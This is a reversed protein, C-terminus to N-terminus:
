PLKFIVPFTYKVEVLEGDQKGPTWKPSKSVVRMAEADLLRHSSRLIKIDKVKGKKSVTLQLTTRGQIGKDMAKQPYKLNENIWNIFSIKPDQGEFVPKTEVIVYPIPMKELRRAERRSTPYCSSWDDIIRVVLEDPSEKRPNNDEVKRYTSCSALAIVASVLIVLHLVTRKMVATKTKCYLIHAMGSFDGGKQM